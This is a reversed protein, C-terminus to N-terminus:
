HRPDPGGKGKGEECQQGFETSNTAFLDGREDAESWVVKVAALELPVAADITTAHWDSVNEVHSRKACASVVRVEFGEGFPKGEGVLLGLDIITATMRFIIVVRLAM